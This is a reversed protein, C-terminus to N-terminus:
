VNGLREGVKGDHTQRRLTRAAAQLGADRAAKETPTTDKSAWNSKWVNNHRAIHKRLHQTNPLRKKKQIDNHQPLTLLLSDCRQTASFPFVFVCCCIVFCLESDLNGCTMTDGDDDSNTTTKTKTTITTQKQKQSAATVNGNVRMANTNYAFM